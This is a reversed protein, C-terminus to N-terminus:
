TAKRGLKGTAVLSFFVCNKKENDVIWQAILQELRITKLQMLIVFYNKKEFGYFTEFM